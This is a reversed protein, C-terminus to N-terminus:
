TPLIRKLFAVSDGLVAAKSRFPKALAMVVGAHSLGRYLRLEVPSGLTRLRRALAIAHRPKVDTDGTSTVLLMPPGGPRAVHVPQTSAPDVVGEMAAAARRDTFPHFDYPGCLAVAGRVVAPELALSRLWRPDLALMAAIYAGASHGALAIRRPSGGFDAIHDCTWAVAAAGDEVFAPFRVAPVKRYDPMVVVFGSTAFARAAFAYARRSGSAWGGGYWFIVVPLPAAGIRRPRWVDLRQGHMGFEIGDAVRRVGRGGGIVVDLWSLMLASSISRAALAMGGAVGLIALLLLWRIM